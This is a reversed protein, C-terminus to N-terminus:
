GRSIFHDHSILWVNQDNVLLLLLCYYYIYYDWTITVDFHIVILHEFILLMQSRQGSPHHYHPATAPAESCLTGPNELKM